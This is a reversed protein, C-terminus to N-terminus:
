IRSLAPLFHYSNLILFVIMNPDLILESQLISNYQIKMIKLM